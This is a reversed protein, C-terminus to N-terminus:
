PHYRANTAQVTNGNRTAIHRHLSLRQYKVEEFTGGGGGLFTSLVSESLACESHVSTIKAWSTKAAIEVLEKGIRGVQVIHLETESSMLQTACSLQHHHAQGCAKTNKRALGTFKSDALGM